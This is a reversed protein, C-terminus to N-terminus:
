QKCVKPALFHYIIYFEYFSFFSSFQIFIFKKTFFLYSYEVHSKVNVEFYVFTPKINICTLAIIYTTACMRVRQLSKVNPQFM